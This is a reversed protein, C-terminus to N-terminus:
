FSIGGPFAWVLGATMLFYRLFKGIAMYLVCPWFGFKLWGAVACLPDGVVPLWSLLCAKPGLKELWRIARGHQSDPKYKDVVQHAGYGLWWDLAGGLTNGATATLVAPWFLEPNLKVLGFVVPESGLPLLTASILSVVFVTSLGFEPLSLLELLHHIWAQM